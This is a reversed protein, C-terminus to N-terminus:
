HLYCGVKWFLGGRKLSFLRSLLGLNCVAKDSPTQTIESDVFDPFHTYLIDMICIDPWLTLNKKQYAILRERIWGLHLLSHYGM